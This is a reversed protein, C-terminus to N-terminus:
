KWEEMIAKRLFPEFYDGRWSNSAFGIDGLDLSYKNFVAVCGPEDFVIGLMDGVSRDYFKVVYFGEGSVGNRHFAIEKVEQAPEKDVTEKVMKFAANIAENVDVSYKNKHDLLIQLLEETGEKKIEPM